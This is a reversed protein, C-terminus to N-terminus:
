RVSIITGEMPLIACATATKVLYPLQLSEPVAASFPVEAFAEGLENTSCFLHTNPPAIFKDQVADWVGYTGNKKAPVYHRGLTVVSDVVNSISMWYFKSGSAMIYEPHTSISSMLRRSCFIWVPATAIATNDGKDSYTYSYSGGDLYEVALTPSDSDFTLQTRGSLTPVKTTENSFWKQTNATSDVIARYYYNEGSLSQFIEFASYTQSFGGGMLRAGGVLSDAYFDISYVDGRTHYWDTAIYSTGDSLLYEAFSDCDIGNPKMMFARFFLPYKGQPLAVTASTADDAVEGACYVNGGWSALTDGKDETGYAIYLIDKNGSSGYTFAASATIIGTAYDKEVSFATIERPREATLAADITEYKTQLEAPVVAHFDIEASDGPTMYNTTSWKKDNVCKIITNNVADWMGGKTYNNGNNTEQYTTPIYYRAYAADNTTISFRYITANTPAYYTVATKGDVSNASAFICLPYDCPKTADIILEKDFAVTKEVPLSTGITKNKVDLTLVTVVNSPALSNNIWGKAKFETPVDQPNPYMYSWSTNNSNYVEFVSNMDSSRAGFVRFNKNTDASFVATISENGTCYYDTILWKGKATSTTPGTVISEYLASTYVPDLIKKVLFARYYAATKAAGTLAVTASTADDAVAVSPVIGGGTAWDYLTAGLDSAGYALYLIHSDGSEGATFAVNATVDTGSQTFTLSTIERAHTVLALTTFVAAFAAIRMERTKM